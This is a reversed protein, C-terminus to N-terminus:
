YARKKNLAVNLDSVLNVIEKRQVNTVGTKQYIANVETSSISLPASTSNIFVTLNYHNIYAILQSTTKSQCFDPSTLFATRGKGSPAYHDNYTGVLVCHRSDVLRSDLNFYNQGTSKSNANLTLFSLFLLIYPKM